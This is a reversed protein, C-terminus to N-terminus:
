YYLIALHLIYLNIQCTQESSYCVSSLEYYLVYYLVIYFLSLTGFQQCCVFFFYINIKTYTGKPPPPEPKKIVPVKKEPVIKKPEEPVQFILIEKLTLHNCHISRIVNM